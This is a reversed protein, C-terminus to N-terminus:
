RKSDDLEEIKNKLSILIPHTSNKYDNDFEDHHAQAESDSYSYRELSKGFPCYKFFCDRCCEKDNFLKNCM